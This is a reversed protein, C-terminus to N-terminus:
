LVVGKLLELEEEEIGEPKFASIYPVVEYEKADYEKTLERFYQNLNKLGEKSYKYPRGGKKDAEGYLIEGTNKDTLAEELQKDAIKENFEDQIPNINKKFFKDVAYYFKTKELEKDKSLISNITNLIEKLEKYTKKMNIIKVLVKVQGIIGMKGLSGARKSM